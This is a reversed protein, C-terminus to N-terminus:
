CLVGQILETRYTAPDPDVDPGSAFIQWLDSTPQHGQQAMWEMLEPWAEQLQEYEGILVAKAARFAPRVSPIVRGNPAVSESTPVGIEFDFHTDPARFHHDFLPGVPEIGQSKLEAFLEAVAPGFHQPCEESPFRMRIVATTQQAVDILKPIQLMITLTLIARAGDGDM